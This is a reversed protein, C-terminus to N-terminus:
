QGPWYIVNPIVSLAAFTDDDLHVVEPTVNLCVFARAAGMLCSVQLHERISSFVGVLTPAPGLKLVHNCLPSGTVAVDCSYSQGAVVLSPHADWSAQVEEVQRNCEIYPTLGLVVENPYRRKVLRRDRVLYSAKLMGMAQNELRSLAKASAPNIRVEFDHHDRQDMFDRLEGAAIEAVKRPPMALSSAGSLGEVPSSRILTVAGRAPGGPSYTRLKMHVRDEGTWLGRVEVVGRAEPAPTSPADRTGMLELEFQPPSDFEGKERSSWEMGDKLIPGITGDGKTSEAWELYEQASELSNTVAVCFTDPSHQDEMNYAIILPWNDKWAVFLRLYDDSLVDSVGKLQARADAYTMVGSARYEGRKLEVTYLDHQWRLHSLAPTIDFAWQEDIEVNDISRLLKARLYNYLEERKIKRIGSM